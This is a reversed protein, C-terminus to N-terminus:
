RRHDRDRRGRSAWAARCSPSGPACCPAAADFPLGDPIKLVFDGTVVIHRSCGGRTLTGDRDVSGYTLTNGNLRYQEYGKRCNACERCSGVMCGVGVRDGVAHRTLHRRLRQRHADSTGKSGTPIRHRNGPDLELTTARARGATISAVPGPYRRYEARYAADIRECVVDADVTGATMHGEHRARTTRYWAGDAGDVSRIYVKEGVRVAWVIRPAALTGGARRPAVRVEDHRDIEALQPQTWAATM